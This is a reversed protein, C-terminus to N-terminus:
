SGNCRKIVSEEEMADKIATEVELAEEMMIINLKRQMSKDSTEVEMPEEMIKLKWQMRLQVDGSGDSREDYTESGNCGEM